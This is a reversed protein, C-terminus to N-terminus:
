FKGEIRLYYNAGNYGFPSEVPYRFVGTSSYLANGTDGWTDPYIDFINNAGISLNFHDNIKYSFEMDTVWKPDFHYLQNDLVTAFEGFRKINLTYTYDGKSLQTYLGISDKPQGSVIREKTIEDILIDQGADGLISPATNIQTIKTNDYHYALSTKFLLDNEFKHKYNLRIDLGDTKTSIANTFYRAETVNYSNLIAQVQPSVSGSINSTLLIRDDIATYFYDASLSFSSSPQYVLGVTYHKSIEPKLDVAGLDRAIPNSVAFTGVQSLASVIYETTTSTFYSQTLTPARFGTNLSGRFMLSKTPKFLLSFKGDFTDGFDSYNEYRSALELTLHQNVNFKTDIYFGVNERSADVVSSPLFGPFGQAGANNSFEGLRYSDAEGSYIKYHEKRYEIGAALWLFDIQKSLDFNLVQQRYSSGGSDFSTPSGDGLSDNLTNHVYFHYDNYGHTYSIDWKVGNEFRDKVGVTMSYDLIKPAIMPLFGDPYINPNNREDIARRFIAGAESERKNLLAHMYFTMGSKTIIESNLALLINQAKPDGYHMNIPDALTNRPDGQPYQDRPDAGARNTAENDRFEGTINIFGDYQLPVTYFLDVQKTKGDKEKTQAYTTTVESKHGYGKLIINIVGAIADSGYQAAAGDRLVEVREIAAKPITNLDVSSSGRGITGNVHILSSQHLRKGNVLVLVQDPNLGRLTFPKSHDSGDKVSPSPYNFGTIYKQLIQALELAGSHRIQDATVVDIPVDSSLTDRRGSRSGINAKIETETNLLEKLSKKYYNESQVNTTDSAASLAQSTIISLFLYNIKQV